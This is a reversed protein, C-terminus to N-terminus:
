AAVQAPMRLGLLRGRDYLEVSVENGQNGGLLIIQGKPTTGLAFGVHGQNPNVGRQFVAICGLEVEHVERAWHLWSRAAASDTGALGAQEVCWNCFASCWPTEDTTARLRTTKHYELIRPNHRPGVVERTNLEGFAISIHKPLM